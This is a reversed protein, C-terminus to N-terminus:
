FNAHLQTNTYIYQYANTYERSLQGDDLIRKKRGGKKSGMTIKSSKKKIANNVAQTPALLCSFDRM